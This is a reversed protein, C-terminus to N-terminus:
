NENPLKYVFACYYLPLGPANIYRLM